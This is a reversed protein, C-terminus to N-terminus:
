ETWQLRTRLINFYGRTHSKIIHTCTEARKLEIADGEEIQMDTQGDLTLLINSSSGKIKVEVTMWNPIVIPRNTLTFPCIPSLIISHITPHLIPGGSSLSYATSGTPTAIILGDARYTTVHEKNISTEINILRAATTRLVADNLVIYELSAGSNKQVNVSLMMREEIEVKGRIVDELVPYIEDESIETLFGLRGLNIGLIPIKRGNIIRVAYLITGDGGLVLMLQIENISEAVIGGAAEEDIFVEGIGKANLWGAIERSLAVAKPQKLKTIIGVKKVKIDM